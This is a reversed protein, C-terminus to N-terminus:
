DPQDIVIPLSLLEDWSLTAEIAGRDNRMAPVRL